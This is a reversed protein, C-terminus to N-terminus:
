RSARRGKTQNRRHAKKKKRADKGIGVRYEHHQNPLSDSWSQAVREIDSFRMM